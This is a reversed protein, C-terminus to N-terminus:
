LSLTLLNLVPVIPELLFVKFIQHQQACKKSKKISKECKLKLFASKLLKENLAFSSHCGSTLAPSQQESALLDLLHFTSTAIMYVRATTSM